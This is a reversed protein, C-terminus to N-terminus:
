EEMLDRCTAVLYGPNDTGVRYQNLSLQVCGNLGHDLYLIKAEPWKDLILKVLETQETANLTHGILSLDVAPTHSAANIEAACCTSQVSFRAQILILERTKLLSSNKGCLLIHSSV